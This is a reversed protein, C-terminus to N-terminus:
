MRFRIMDTVFKAPYGISIIWRDTDAHQILIQLKSAPAATIIPLIYLCFRCIYSREYTCAHMCTHMCVYMRVYMCTQQQWLYARLCTYVYMCMCICVYLHVYTFAYFCVSIYMFVYKTEMIYLNSTYHFARNDSSAFKIYEFSQRLVLNIIPNLWIVFHWWYLTIMQAWNKVKNSWVVGNLIITIIWYQTCPLNWVVVVHFKFVKFDSNQFFVIVESRVFGQEGM